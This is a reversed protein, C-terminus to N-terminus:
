PVARALELIYYRGDDFAARPRLRTLELERGEARARARAIAEDFPKFYAASRSALQDADVLLHTVDFESRLRALPEPGTAFYADVLAMARRRMELTEKDHQAQHTEFTVFPRIRSVYTADDAPGTPWGALLANAPLDAM